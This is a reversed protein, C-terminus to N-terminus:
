LVLDELDTSGHNLLQVEEAAYALIRVVESSLTLEHSTSSKKRVTMWGRAMEGMNTASSDGLFVIPHRAAERLIGLLLHDSYICPSGAQSAEYNAFFVGRRARETFQEFM